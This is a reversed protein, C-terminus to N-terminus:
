AMLVHHTRPFATGLAAPDVQRAAAGGAGDAEQATGRKGPGDARSVPVNDTM